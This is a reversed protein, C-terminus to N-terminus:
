YEGYGAYTRLNPRVQIASAFNIIRELNTQSSIILKGSALRCSFHIKSYVNKEPLISTELYM